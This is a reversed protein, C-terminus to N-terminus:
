TTSPKGWSGSSRIRDPQTLLEASSTSRRGAMGASGPVSWCGSGGALNAGWCMMFCSTPSTRSIAGVTGSLGGVQRTLQRLTQQTRQLEGETRLQAQALQMLAEEVRDMRGSLQDVRGALEDMRGALQGLQEETRAQAQALQAIGETLRDFGERTARMDRVRDDVIAVVAQYLGATLGHYEEM